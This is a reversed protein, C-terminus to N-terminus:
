LPRRTYVEQTVHHMDLHRDELTVMDWHPDVHVATHGGHVGVGIRLRSVGEDVVM